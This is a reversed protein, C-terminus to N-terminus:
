PEKKSSDKNQKQKQKAEKDLRKADVADKGHDFDVDCEDKKKVQGKPEKLVNQQEAQIDTNQDDDRLRFEGKFQGANSELLQDNVEATRGQEREREILLELKSYKSKMPEDHSVTVAMENELFPLAAAIEKALAFYDVERREKEEVDKMAEKEKLPKGVTQAPETSQKRIPAISCIATASSTPPSSRGGAAMNGDHVIADYLHYTKKKEDPHAFRKLSVAQETQYFDASLRRELTTGAMRLSPDFANTPQNCEQRVFPDPQYAGLVHGELASMFCTDHVVCNQSHSHSHSHSHRHSTLYSIFASTYTLIQLICKLETAMALENTLGAGTPRIAEWQSRCSSKLSLTKIPLEFGIADVSELVKLLSM